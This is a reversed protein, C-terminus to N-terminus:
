PGNQVVRLPSKLFLRRVSSPEAARADDVGAAVEGVTRRWLGDHRTWRAARGAADAVRREAARLADALAAHVADDYVADGYVEGRDDEDADDGRARARKRATRPAFAADHAAAEVGDLADFRSARLRPLDAAAALM